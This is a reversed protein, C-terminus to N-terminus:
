KVEATSFVLPTELDQDRFFENWILAYARFPLASVPLTQVGTPVGLYDGLSGVAFGTGAPSAITPHVPLSVGSPGGTIMDAFNAWLLRTPVFYNSVTVDVPHMVPSLLPSSRVLASCAHQMTDGPLVELVMSPILEGLDQTFLKTHSLGFKNRKM